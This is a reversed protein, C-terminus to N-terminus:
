SSRTMRRVGAYVSSVAVIKVIDIPIFRLWGRDLSMAWTEHGAAFHLWVVGCTFLVVSGAALSLLTGIGSNWRTSLLGGLAAALPYGLLYGTSVAGTLYAIGHGDGAFVPLFLGLTLYLAQALLGNRWGLFLGSGYVALTQLTFPVEWFAVRFQAGLATLAAFGVVGAVQLLVSAEERRLIDVNAAHHSHLLHSLQM